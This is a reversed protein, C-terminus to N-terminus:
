EIVFHPDSIDYCREKEREKQRAMKRVTRKCSKVPDEGAGDKKDGGSRKM